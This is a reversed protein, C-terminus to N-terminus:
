IGRWSLGALQGQATVRAFAAPLTPAVLPRLRPAPFKKNKRGTHISFGGNSRIFGLFRLREKRLNNPSPQVQEAINGEITANGGAQPITAV